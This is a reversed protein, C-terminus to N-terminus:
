QLVTKVGLAKGTSDRIIEKPASVLQLVATMMQDQQADRESQRQMFAMMMQQMTSTSDTVGQSLRNAADTIEAGKGDAGMMIQTAPKSKAEASDRKIANTEDQNKAALQRSQEQDIAKLQLEAYAIQRKLELQAQADASKMMLERQKIQAEFMAKQQDLQQQAKAQEGQQQVKVMEPNPQPEPPPQTTPDTFYLEPDRLGSNEVVKRCTHYINDLSVMQEGGPTMVAQQQIQLISMLHMLTQDKNGTGLGVNISMTFLSEWGRPDIPEYSNNIKLVRAKTQNTSECWLILKFLDTIGTEAFIRAILEIRQQAASMIQSIGTATKNLSDANTGQNYRTVGTRNERVGDLWEMLTLSEKAMFPVVIPQIHGDKPMQGEALRVFGGIRPTMYDDLNVYESVVNRPSNTLYINNLMERTLESKILQLDMTIDAISRGFFRHARPLPTVSWYPVPGDWETNAEEGDIKLVEYGNGATIIRRREAIGDGDYDMLIYCDNIWVMRSVGDRNSDFPADDDYERRTIAEDNADSPNEGSDLGMAQKEDVGMEILDSISKQTRDGVMYATQITKADRSILFQEPPYNDVCTKGATKRYKVTYTREPALPQPAPQGMPPLGPAAAVPSQPIGGGGAVGDVGPAPGSPAVSLGGYGAQPEPAEDPTESIVEIDPDQAILALEDETVGQETRVQTKGYADWYVKGVGNKQILADQFATHFIMFGPNDKYFVYNCLATAQAASKDYQEHEAQFEVANDGSAFIKLLAPMIWDVTDAVEQMVVQSRGEEENGLPEALYYKLANSRQEAIKDGTFAVADRVAASLISSVDTKSAKAM